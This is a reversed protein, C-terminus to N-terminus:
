EPTWFEVISVEGTTGSVTQEQKYNFVTQFLPAQLACYNENPSPLALRYLLAM